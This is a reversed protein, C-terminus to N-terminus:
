VGMEFAIAKMRGNPRDTSGEARIMFLPLRGNRRSPLLGCRCSRMMMFTVPLDLLISFRCYM